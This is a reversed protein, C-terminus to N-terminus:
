RKYKYRYKPKLYEYHFPKILKKKKYGESQLRICPDPRRFVKIVSCSSILLVGLMLLLLSIQKM